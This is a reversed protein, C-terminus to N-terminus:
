LAPAIGRELASVHRGWKDQFSQWGTKFYLGWLFKPLKCFSMWEERFTEVGMFYIFSGMDVGGKEMYKQMTRAWQFRTMASKAQGLVADTNGLFHINLDSNYNDLVTALSVWGNVNCDLTRVSKGIISLHTRLNKQSDIITQEPITSMYQKLRPLLFGETIDLHKSMHNSHIDWLTRVSSVQWDQIQDSSSKLKDVITGLAAGEKYLAEYILVLTDRDGDGATFTSSTSTSEMLITKSSGAEHYVPQLTAAQNFALTSVSGLLLLFQRAQLKM